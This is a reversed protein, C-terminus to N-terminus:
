CMGCLSPHRVEVWIGNAIAVGSCGARRGGVGLCVGRGALGAGSSRGGVSPSGVLVLRGTCPHALLAARAGANGEGAAPVSRLNRSPALTNTAEYRGRDSRILIRSDRPPRWIGHLGKIRGWGRAHWRWGMPSGWSAARGTLLFNQGRNKYQYPGIISTPPGGEVSDPGYTGIKIFFFWFFFPFHLFYSFLFFFPAVQFVSSCHKLCGWSIAIAHRPHPRM